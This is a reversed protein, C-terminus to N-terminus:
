LGLGLQGDDTQGESQTTNGEAGRKVLHLVEPIKAFDEKFGRMMEPNRLAAAPHYVPFIKYNKTQILTGRDLTIRGQPYFYNLAFRGLAVVLLPSIIKLQYALFQECSDIEDPLPDRNEPPRHKVINGIWVDKRSYGIEKLSQELLMGARGVFPRGTEDEVRGPAEGVFAIESNINGEGPVANLAGRRLRCKTCAKIAATVKSMMEEKNM